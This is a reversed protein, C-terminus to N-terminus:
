PAAGGPIAFGGGPSGGEGEFFRFTPGGFGATQTAQASIAARAPIIVTQGEELGETIEINSGDSLGTQVIVREKSGDDKLVEVVSNRGETQVASEPVVLVNQVSELVITVSANMGPLPKASTAAASPLGGDGAAPTASPTATAAPAAGPTPTAATEPAAAGRARQMLAAQFDDASMGHAEAIEAMAQGSELAASLEEETMGLIEAAATLIGARSGPLLAGTGSALPATMVKARAQYTVVGQTTTPNTGISEITIPFAQGELADFTATGSQGVELSTTDSETISLNLYVAGPTNLVIAAEGGASVQDGVAINLEAVTGDFPAILKAKELDKRAKEVAEEAQRVQERQLRIEQADAGDYM